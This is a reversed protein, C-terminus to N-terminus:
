PIGVLTFPLCCRFLDSALCYAVVIRRMIYFVAGILLVSVANLLHANKRDDKVAEYDEDGDWEFAGYYFDQQGQLLHM